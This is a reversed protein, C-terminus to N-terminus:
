RRAKKEKIKEPLILVCSFLLGRKRLTSPITKFIRFFETFSRLKIANYLGTFVIKRYRKFLDVKEGFEYYMNNLLEIHKRYTDMGTNISNFNHGKQCRKLRYVVMVDPMIYARGYLLILLSDSLDDIYKSMQPMKSFFICADDSLFPNRMMIGNLPINKGNEFMELTFEKGSDEEPPLQSFGITDNDYRLESRNCVAYFDLNKDLFDAQKAIKNEDIWYDDGSLDCIYMGDCMSKAMFMNATLGINHDNINYKIFDYKEAYQKIIKATGDTSADDSICIQIPFDVRQALVSEIAQALYEEHFYTTMFVSVKPRITSM